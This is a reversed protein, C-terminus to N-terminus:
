GDHEGARLGRALAARASASAGDLRTSQELRRGLQTAIGPNNIVGRRTAGVLYGLRQAAVEDSAARASLNRAVALLTSGLTQLESDTRLRSVCTSLRTTGALRVATPARELAQGIAQRGGLCAAPVPDRERACGASVLALLLVAALVTWRM